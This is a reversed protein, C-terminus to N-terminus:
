CLKRLIDNPKLNIKQDFAVILESMPTNVIEVSENTNNKISKIKVKIIHELTTSLVEFTDNITFYNRSTVKYTNENIKKDITLVFL